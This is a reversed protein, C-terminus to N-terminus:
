KPNIKGSSTTVTLGEIKIIRAGKIMDGVHVNTVKNDDQIWAQVPTGTSPYTARVWLGEIEAPATTTNSANDTKKTDSETKQKKVKAKLNHHSTTSKSVKMVGAQAGHGQHSSSGNQKANQSVIKAAPAPAPVTAPAGVTTDSAQSAPPATNAAIPKIDSQNAAAFAADKEKMMNIQAQTESNIQETKAPVLSNQQAALAAPSLDAQTPPLDTKPVPTVQKAQKLADQPIAPASDLEVIPPPNKKPFVMPWVFTGVIGVIFLGVVATVINTLKKFKKKKDDVLEDVLLDDDEHAVQDTLNTHESYHTGHQDNESSFIPSDTHETLNSHHGDMHDEHQDDLTIVESAEHETTM